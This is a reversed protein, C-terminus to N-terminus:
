NREVTSPLPAPIRVGSIYYSRRRWKMTTDEPSTLNDIKSIMGVALEKVSILPGLAPLLLGLQLNNRPLDFVGIDRYLYVAGILFGLVVPSPVGNSLLRDLMLKMMCPLKRKDSDLADHPVGPKKVEVVIFPHGNREAYYDPYYKEEFGTPLPLPDRGWHDAIDLNTFVGTIINKVIAQTYTDENKQQSQQTIFELSSDQWLSPRITFSVLVDEIMAESSSIDRVYKKTELFTHTAAFMACESLIEIEKKEPTLIFIPSMKTFVKVPLHKKLFETDFIFNLSLIDSTNELESQRKVIEKRANMLIQSVDTTGIVLRASTHLQSSTSGPGVLHNIYHFDISNLSSRPSSRDSPDSVVYDLDSKSSQSALEEDVFRIRKSSPPKSAPILVVPSPANRPSTELSEINQPVQKRKANRIKLSETVRQDANDLQEISNHLVSWERGVILRECYYEDLHQNTMRPANIAAERVKAVKSKKLDRIWQDWEQRLRLLLTKERRLGRFAIYDCPNFELRGSLSILYGAGKRSVSIVENWDIEKRSSRTKSM